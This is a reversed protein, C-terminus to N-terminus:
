VKFIMELWYNRIRFDLELSVSSSWFHSFAQLFGMRFLTLVLFYKECFCFLSHLFKVFLLKQPFAGLYESFENVKLFYINYNGTLWFKELPTLVHFFYLIQQLLHQKILLLLVLQKRNKLFWRIWCRWFIIAINICSVWFRQIVENWPFLTVLTAVEFPISPRKVFSLYPFRTGQLQLLSTRKLLHNSKYRCSEYLHWISSM